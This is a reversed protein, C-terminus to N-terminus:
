EGKKWLFVEGSPGAYVQVFGVAQLEAGDLCPSDGNKGQLIFVADVERRSGNALGQFPLQVCPIEQIGREGLMFFPLNQKLQLPFVGSSAEYNELILLRRKYGLYHSFHDTIWRNHRHLPLVVDGDKLYTSADTIERALNGNQPHTSWYFIAFSLSAYLLIAGCMIRAFRWSPLSGLALAASIMIWYGFRYPLFSGLGVQDPTIFFLIIFGVSIGVWPYKSASSRKFGRNRVAFALSALMQIFFAILTWRAFIGEKGADIGKVVQGQLLLQLKEALPTFPISQVSPQSSLLYILLIAMGPVLPLLDLWLSKLWHSLQKPAQLQRYLSFTLLCLVGTAFVFLHIVSLCTMGILLWSDLRPSKASHHEPTTFVHRSNKRSLILLLLVVGIMFNYFGMFFPFGMLLPFAAYSWARSSSEPLLMLRRFGWSFSLVLLSLLFKHATDASFIQLLGLLILHDAWNTLTRFQLTFIESFMGEPGRLVEALLKSNYVHAPGDLTPFYPVAWVLAVYLAVIVGFLCTEANTAQKTNLWELNKKLM